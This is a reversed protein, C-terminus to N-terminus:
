PYHFPMFVIFKNLGIVFMKGARRFGTSLVSCFSLRLYTDIAQIGFTQSVSGCHQIHWVDATWVSDALQDGLVNTGNILWEYIWGTLWAAVRAPQNMSENMRPAFQNTLSGVLWCISVASISVCIDRRQNSEAPSVAWRSSSAALQGRSTEIRVRSSDCLFFRM